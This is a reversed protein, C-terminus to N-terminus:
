AAAEVIIAQSGAVICPSATRDPMSLSSNLTSNSM